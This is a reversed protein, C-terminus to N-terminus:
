SQFMTVSLAWNILIKNGREVLISVMLKVNTPTQLSPNRDNYESSLYKKKFFWKLNYQTGTFTIKKEVKM